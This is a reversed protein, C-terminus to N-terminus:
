EGGGFLLFAGFLFEGDGCANLSGKEWFLGGDDGAKFEVSELTELLRQINSPPVHAFLESQLMDTLWDGTTASDLEEVEIAPM